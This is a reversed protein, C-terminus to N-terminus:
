AIRNDFRAALNAVDKILGKLADPIGEGLTPRVVQRDADLHWGVANVPLTFREGSTEVSVKDGVFVSRGFGVADTVADAVEATVVWTDADLRVNTSATAQVESTQNLSSVDVFRERRDAGVAGSDATRFTRGTGTGDGGAVVWTSRAPIFRSRVSILDAQDSLVITESLDRPQRIAAVVAGASTVTFRITLEGDDLIRRALEYVPQLRASWTGSMGVLGDTVSFGAVVRDTLATSGLNDNLYSALVTSAVGTNV